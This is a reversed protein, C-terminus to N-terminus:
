RPFDEAKATALTVERTMGTSYVARYKVPVTKGDKRAYVIEERILNKQDEATEMKRMFTPVAALAPVTAMVELMDRRDLKNEISNAM